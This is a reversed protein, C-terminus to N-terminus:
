IVDLQESNTYPDWYRVLINLSRAIEIEDVVGVSANWDNFMIVFLQDCRSVQLRCADRWWKYNVAHVADDASFYNLIAYNQISPSLWADKPFATHLKCMATGLVNSVKYEGTLDKTFAEMSPISVFNLNTM